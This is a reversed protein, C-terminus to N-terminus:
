DMTKMEHYREAQCRNDVGKSREISLTTSWADHSQIVDLHIISSVDNKLRQKCDFSQSVKEKEILVDFRKMETRRKKMSEPLQHSLRPAFTEELAM